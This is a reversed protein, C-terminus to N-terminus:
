TVWDCKSKMFLGASEKGASEVTPQEGMNNVALQWRLHADNKRM